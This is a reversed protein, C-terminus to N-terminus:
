IFQEETINPATWSVLYTNDDGTQNVEFAIPHYTLELTRQEGQEDKYYQHEIIQVPTEKAAWALFQPHYENTNFCFLHGKPPNAMVTTRLTLQNSKIYNFNFEAGSFSILYNSLYPTCYYM